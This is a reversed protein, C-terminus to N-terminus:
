YVDQKSEMIRDMYCQKIDVLNIFIRYYLQYNINFTTIELVNFM